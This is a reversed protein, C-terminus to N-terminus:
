CRAHELFCCRREVILSYLFRVSWEAQLQPEHLGPKIFSVLTVSWEVLLQPEHLDPKLTKSIVRYFQVSVFMKKQINVRDICFNQFKTAFFIYFTMAEM